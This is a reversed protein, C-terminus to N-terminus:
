WEIGMSLRSSFSSMSGIEKGSEDLRVLQSTYAEHLLIGPNEIDPNVAISTLYLYDDVTPFPETSWNGDQKSLIEIGWQSENERFIIMWFENKVRNIDLDIIRSDRFFLTDTNDLHIMVLGSDTAICTVELDYSIKIKHPYHLNSFITDIKGSSYNMKIVKNSDQVSIWVLSNTSDIALNTNRTLPISTILSPLQDGTNSFVLLEPHGEMSVFVDGSSQNITLGSPNGPLDVIILSDGNSDFKQLRPPYNIALWVTGENSYVDLDVPFYIIKENIVHAGDYSIKLLLGQYYDSIWYNYPGPVISQPESYPTEYEDSSVISIAFEYRQDYESVETFIHTVTDSISSIFEFKDESETKVWINYHSINIDNAKSWSMYIKKKDSYLSLSSPIGETKLNLPDLPNSRKRDSCSIILLFTLTFLLSNQLNM